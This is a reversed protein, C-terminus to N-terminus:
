KTPLPKWKRSTWWKLVIDATEDCDEKFEIHDDWSVPGTRTLTHIMFRLPENDLDVPDDYYDVDCFISLHIWSLTYGTEHACINGDKRCEPTLKGALKHALAITRSSLSSANSTLYFEDVNSTNLM